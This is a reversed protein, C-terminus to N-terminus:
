NGPIATLAGATLAPAFEDKLAVGSIQRRRAETLLWHIRQAAHIAPLGHASINSVCNRAADTLGPRPGFVLYAGLSDPSVLGPREGLLMLACRAGLRHGIEDQVAVRGHAVLCVPGLRWGEAQLGPVLTALVPVAHTDVALTSLGGSVIVVLDPPDPPRQGALWAASAECLRRGLDPRLLFEDLGTAASTLTWVPLATAQSLRTALGTLDLPRRLADRARAHALRFDLLAATPLSGGARGLAIRAPTFQRLAAWPSPAAPNM